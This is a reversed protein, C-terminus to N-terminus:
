NYVCNVYGSECNKHTTGNNEYLKQYNEILGKYTYFINYIWQFDDCLLDRNM